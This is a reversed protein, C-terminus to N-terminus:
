LSGPIFKRVLMVRICPLVVELQPYSLLTVQLFLTSAGSPSMTYEVRKQLKRV